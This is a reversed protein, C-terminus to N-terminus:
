GRRNIEEVTRYGVDYLYASKFKGCKQCQSVVHTSPRQIGWSTDRIHQVEIAKYRHFFCFM